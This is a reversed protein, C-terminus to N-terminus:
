VSNRLELKEGVDLVCGNRKIRVEEALSVFCTKRSSVSGQSGGRVSEYFVHGGAGVLNGSRLFFDVVRSGLGQPPCPLGNASKWSGPRTDNSASVTGTERATSAETCAASKHSLGSPLLEM